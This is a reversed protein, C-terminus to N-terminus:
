DERKRKNKLCECTFCSYIDIYWNMFWSVDSYLRQQSCYDCKMFKELLSSEVVKKGYDYYHIEYFSKKSSETRDFYYDDFELVQTPDWDCEVQEETKNEKENDSLGDMVEICTGETINDDKPTLLLLQSRLKKLLPEIEKKQDCRYSFWYINRYNKNILSKSTISIGFCLLPVRQGIFNRLREVEMYRDKLSEKLDSIEKELKEISKSEKM